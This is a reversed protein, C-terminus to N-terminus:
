RAIDGMGIPEPMRADPLRRLGAAVQRDIEACAEHLSACRIRRAFKEGRYLEACWDGFDFALRVADPEPRYARFRPFRLLSATM